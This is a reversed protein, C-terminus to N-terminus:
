SRSLRYRLLAEGFGSGSDGCARRADIRDVETVVLLVRRCVGGRIGTPRPTDRAGRRMVMLGLSLLGQPWRFKVTCRSVEGAGAARRQFM